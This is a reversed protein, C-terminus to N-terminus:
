RKMIELYDTFEFLRNRKYGTTERLIGLSVFDRLLDNSAKSSLELEKSVLGATVMPRVFLLDLFRQGNKAKRGLTPVKGSTLQEKLALIDKLAVAAEISTAEIAQLFFHIWGLLDHKDRVLTLKDYYLGKNKEFYDSAYLLPRDLMGVSVLYLTILLRGIRGNGDLFPHITEFQYHAIAVKVLHPIAVHENQLFKELDSMLNEIHEASPPVFIANDITAGGIWNQSRRFEGPSKNKGRVHSLLTAHTDRILRNSLPLKNLKTLAGNTAEVYKKTEQWDDRHEPNVDLEDSFAQEMNTNTGEIRSSTVAEKMVYSQIFLDINPVFKAFSNLEGLRLSVIEIKRQLISDSIEWDHNIENPLFYKYKYGKLWKGSNFDRIDM